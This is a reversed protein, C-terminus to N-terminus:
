TYREFEKAGEKKSSLTDIAAGTAAAIATTRDDRAAPVTIAHRTCWENGGQDSM